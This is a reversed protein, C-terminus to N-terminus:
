ALRGIEQVPTLWYVIDRSPLDRSLDALVTRAEAERLIALLVRRRARGMVAEAATRLQQATGFGEAQLLTFGPMLASREHCFDILDEELSAPFAVHLAVLAGGASGDNTRAPETM